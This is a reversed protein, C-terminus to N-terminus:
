GDASECALLRRLEADTTRLLKGLDFITISGPPAINGDERFFKAFSAWLDQASASQDFAIATPGIATSSLEVTFALLKRGSRFRDFPKHKVRGARKLRALSRDAGTVWNALHSASELAIGIRQFEAILCITVVDAYRFRRVRGRGPHLTEAELPIDHRALWSQMTAPSVGAVQAVQDFDYQRSYIGVSVAAVQRFSKCRAM